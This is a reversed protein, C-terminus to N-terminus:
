EKYGLAQSIRAATTRVMPSWQAQRQRDAPASLSLGAVLQGGDDHIGAAICRVGREAEEQDLAFGQSRVDALEHVLADLSTLSNPTAATLRTREAYGRVREADDRALFLKGAATIHLPARAGIMQVVRMMSRNEATREVYVIEDGQRVSLNVTEGTDRALERMFPLAIERVDLRARVVNGLELFRMGLRYSGPEVRDAFGCRVMVGLIRHATSPHLSTEAALVKLSSAGPAAALADILTMMRDIVQISTRADETMRIHPM